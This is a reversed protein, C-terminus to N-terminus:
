LNHAIVYKELNTAQMLLSTITTIHKIYKATAVTEAKSQSNTNPYTVISYITNMNDTLAQRSVFKKSIQDSRRTDIEILIMTNDNVIGVIDVSDRMRDSLQYEMEWKIHPFKRTLFDTLPQQIYEKVENINKGEYKGAYSKQVKTPTFNGLSSQLDKALKQLETTSSLDTETTNSTNSIDSNADRWFELYRNVAQKLTASGTRVNGDIPIKHRAERHHREDDTSYSLDNLLSQISGNKVLADIDGYYKEITSINSVRSNAASEQLGYEEILWKKFNTKMNIINNQNINDEM